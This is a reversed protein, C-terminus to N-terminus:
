IKNYIVILSWNNNMASWRQWWISYWQKKWFWYIKIRAFDHMFSIWWMIHKQIVWVYWDSDILIDGMDNYISIDWMKEKMKNVLEQDSSSLDNLSIEKLNSDIKQEVKKYTVDKEKFYTKSIRVPWSYKKQWRIESSSSNDNGTLKSYRAENGQILERYRAENNQIMKSYKAQNAQITDSYTDAKVSWWLATILLLAKVASWFKWKAFNQIDFFNKKEETIEKNVELFVNENWYKSELSNDDISNVWYKEIVKPEVPANKWPFASLMVINWDEIKQLIATIEKTEPLSWVEAIFAEKVFSFKENLINWNEDKLIEFQWTEPNKWMEPYWAWKIWNYESEIWWPTRVKKTLTHPISKLDEKPYIWTWWISDSYKITIESRWDKDFPINEPLNDKIISIIDSSDLIEWNFQSGAVDWKQHIKLHGACAGFNIIKKPIEEVEKFEWTKNRTSSYNIEEAEPM